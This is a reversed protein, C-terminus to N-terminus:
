EAANENYFEGIWFTRVDCKPLQRELFLYLEIERRLITYNQSPMRLYANIKKQPGAGQYTIKLLKEPM